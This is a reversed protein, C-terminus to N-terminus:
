KHAFSTSPSSALAAQAQSSVKKKSRKQSLNQARVAPQQTVISCLASFVDGSRTDWDAVFEPDTAQEKSL